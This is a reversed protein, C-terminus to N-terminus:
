NLILISEQWRFLETMKKLFHFESNEFKMKFSSSDLDLWDEIEWSKLILEIDNDSLDKSCKISYQM